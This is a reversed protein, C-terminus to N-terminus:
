KLVSVIEEMIVRTAGAQQQVFDAARASIEKLKQEDNLLENVQTSLEESNAVSFAMEGAVMKRAERFKHYNPGFFVPVGYTAAELINHIGAGFGGGIYALDAFRYIQSLLGISDIILFMKGDVNNETAESYLVANKGLKEHLAQIRTENVEHPALIFGVSKSCSKSLDYILLEDDPWTSGAVLVQRGQAFRSILPFPKAVSKIDAVRDFRTDGSIGVNSIDIMQLLEASTKDQVFIRNIQRLHTRFWGGYWRFFLQDPRFIASITYVPIQRVFLEHLYNYWFEYKVFVAVSPKVINIFNRAKARTDAPLYFIYDADTIRHRQSYGSPSFFTLLIRYNPFERKFAEIVPKGQEYEGLSACHFWAVPAAKASAYHERFVENLKGFLNKRGYHWHRAKANFLAAIRISLYYFTIASSYLFRM